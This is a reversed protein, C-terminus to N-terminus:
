EGRKSHARRPRRKTKTRCVMGVGAGCVPCWKQRAGLEERMGPPCWESGLARRVINALAQNEQRRRREERLLRELEEIKKRMSENRREEIALSFYFNEVMGQERETLDEARLSNPLVPDSVWDNTLAVFLGDSLDSM